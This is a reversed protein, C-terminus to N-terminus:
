SKNASFNNSYRVIKTFQTAFLKKYKEEPDKKSNKQWYRSYNITSQDGSIELNKSKRM